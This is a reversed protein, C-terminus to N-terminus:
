VHESFASQLGDAQRRQQMKIVDRKMRRAADSSFLFRKVFLQVAVNAILFAKALLASRTIPSRAIISVTRAFTLTIRARRTPRTIVLM